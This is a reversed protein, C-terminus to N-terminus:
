KFNSKPRSEGHMTRTSTPINQKQMNEFSVHEALQQIQTADYSRGIFESISKIGDFRSNLLDKYKLFLVNDFNRLNWYSLVHSHFPMFIFHHNVFATCFDDFTGLYDM